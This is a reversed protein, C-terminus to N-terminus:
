GNNHGDGARAIFETIAHRRAAGCWAAVVTGSTYGMRMVHAVSPCDRVEMPQRSQNKAVRRKEKRHRRRRLYTAVVVLAWGVLGCIVGVGAALGNSPTEATYGMTILAGFSGFVLISLLSGLSFYCRNACAYAINRQEVTRYSPKGPRRSPPPPPPPRPIAASHGAGGSRVAVGGAAADGEGNLSPGALFPAKGSGSSEPSETGNGGSGSGVRRCCCLRPRGRRGGPVTSAVPSPKNGISPPLMFELTSEWDPVHAYYRQQIMLPVPKVYRREPPTEEAFYCRRLCSIADNVVAWAYACRRAIGSNLQLPDIEEATMETDTFLATTKRRGSNGDGITSGRTRSGSRRTNTSGGHVSMGMALEDDSLLGGAGGQSAVSLIRTRQASQPLPQFRPRGRLLADVEPVIYEDSGGGSSSGHEESIAGGAPAYGANGSANGDGDGGIISLSRSPHRSIGARVGSPSLFPEKLARDGSVGALIGARRGSGAHWWDISERVGVVACSHPWDHHCALSLVRM